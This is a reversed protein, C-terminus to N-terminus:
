GSAETTKGTAGPSESSPESSDREVPTVRQRETIANAIQARHESSLYDLCSVACRPPNGGESKWAVDNGEPDRFNRWGRLGYRLIQLTVTGRNLRGGSVGSDGVILEAGLDEIKADQEATLAGLVFVTKQPDIAGNDARDDPLQWDWTAAPTIAIPAM